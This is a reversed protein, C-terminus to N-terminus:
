KTELIYVLCLSFSKVNLTVWLGDHELALEALINKRSTLEHCGCLYTLSGYPDIPVPLLKAGTGILKACIYSHEIVM